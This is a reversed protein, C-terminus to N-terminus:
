FLTLVGGRNVSGGDITIITGSTYGSRDALDHRHFVRSVLAINKDRGRAIFVNDGILVHRRHFVLGDNAVDTVKVIFNVHNREFFASPFFDLRLNVMHDERITLADNQQGFAPQHVETAAGAVRAKHHRRAEGVLRNSLDFKEGLLGVVFDALDIHQGLMKVFFDRSQMQFLYARHEALQAFLLSRVDADAFGARVLGVGVAISPDSSKLATM